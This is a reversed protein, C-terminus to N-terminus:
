KHKSQNKREREREKKREKKRINTPVWITAIWYRTACVQLQKVSHLIKKAEICSQQGTTVGMIKLLREMFNEDGERTFSRGEHVAVILM